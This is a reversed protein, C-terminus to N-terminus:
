TQVPGPSDLGRRGVMTSSAVYHQALFHLRDKHSLLKSYAAISPLQAEWSEQGWLCPAPEAQLAQVSHSLCM